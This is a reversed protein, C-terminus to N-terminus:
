RRPTAAASPPASSTFHRALALAEAQDFRVLMNTLMAVVVREKPLMLIFSRGGSITGGHHYYRTGDPATDIRWGLGVNTKKGDALTQPTFMQDLTSQRLFGPQLLASGFRVLDEASSLVGASSWKYSSDNPAANEIAGAKSKEYFAAREPIVLAPEDLTVSTLQLPGAVEDQLNAGYSRHTAKEILVGLLNYGYSSYGYATGPTFLLPDDRFISLGDELSAYRKGAFVPDADRYHRIGSTHGLLQRPTIPAQKQPFDPLYQQIPADLDLVKREALRAAIAATFLKSVSGLRYRTTGSAPVSQELDAFGFGESWVIRGDVAVAVSMGPIAEKAMLARVESRPPPATSACAALLLLAPIAKM